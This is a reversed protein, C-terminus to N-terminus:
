PVSGMWVLHGEGFLCILQSVQVRVPRCHQEAAPTSGPSGAASCPRRASRRRSPAVGWRRCSAACGRRGQLDTSWTALVCWPGTTGLPLCSTLPISNTRSPIRSSFLLQENDGTHSGHLRCTAIAGTTPLFCVFPSSISRFNYWWTRFAFLWLIEM